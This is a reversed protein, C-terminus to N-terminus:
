GTAVTDDFDSIWGHQNTKIYSDVLRKDLDEYEIEMGFTINKDFGLSDRYYLKSTKIQEKLEALENKSLKSLKDNTLCDFTM